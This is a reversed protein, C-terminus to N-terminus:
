RARGRGCSLCQPAHLVGRHVTFQGYRSMTTDGSARISYRGIPSRRDRISFFARRTAARARRPSLRAIGARDAADLVADMAEYAYVAYADPRRGTRAWVRRFVDLGARPLTSPLLAPSTLRLPGDAGGVCMSRLLEPHNALGDGGFVQLRPMATTLARITREAGNQALGAFLVAQAGAARVRGALALREDGSAPVGARGVVRVGFHPAAHAAFLRALDRGYASGDQVVFVRRVRWDRMSQALAAAQSLDNPIVRAFTRRGSPRMAASTTLDVATSSPSVTLVGARNLIPVAVATAGSSAEGLYALTRPDAAARRANARTRAASWRGTRPDADSLVRLRLRRGDVRRGHDAFALRVATLLDRPAAGSRGDLPLSVYITDAGRGRAAAARAVASGAAAPTVDAAPPMVESPTVDDADSGSSTDDTVCLRWSWHLDQATAVISGDGGAGTPSTGAPCIVTEAQPRDRAGWWAFEIGGTSSWPAPWSGDRVAFLERPPCAGADYQAPRCWGDDAPQPRVVACLPMADDGADQDLDVCLPGLALSTEKCAPDPWQIVRLNGVGGSGDDPQPVAGTTRPEDVTVDPLHYLGKQPGNPVDAPISITLNGKYRYYDPVLELKWRTGRDLTFFLDARDEVKDTVTRDYSLSLEGSFLGAEVSFSADGGFTVATSSETAVERRFPSGEDSTECGVSGAQIIRSPGRYPAPESTVSQWICNQPTKVCGGVFLAQPQSADTVTRPTRRTVVTSTIPDAEGAYRFVTQCEYPAEPAPKDSGLHRIECETANQGLLPARSQAWLTYDSSGIRLNHTVVLDAPGARCVWGGGDYGPRIVGGPPPIRQQTRDLTNDCDFLDAAPSLTRDLVTLTVGEGGHIWVELRRASAEAPLVVAMVVAAAM